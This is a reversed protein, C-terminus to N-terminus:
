EAPQCAISVGNSAEAIFCIFGTEDYYKYVRTKESPTLVYDEGAVGGTNQQKDFHGKIVESLIWGIFFCLAMLTIHQARTM